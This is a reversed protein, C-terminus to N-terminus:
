GPAAAAARRRSRAAGATASSGSSIAAASGHSSCARGSSEPLSLQAADGPQEGFRRGPRAPAAAPRCPARGAASEVPEAEAGGLDQERGAVLRDVVLEAGAAGVVALEEVRQGVEGALALVEVAVAGEEADLGAAAVSRTLSGCGSRCGSWPSPRSARVAVGGRRCGAAARRGGASSARVDAAVAVRDGVDVGAEALGAGRGQRHRAMLALGFAAAPLVEAGREGALRRPRLLSVIAIM